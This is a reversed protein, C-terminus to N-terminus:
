LMMTNVQVEQKPALTAHEPLRVRLEDKGQEGIAEFIKGCREAVYKKMYPLLLRMPCNTLSGILAFIASVGYPNAWSCDIVVFLPESLNVHPKMIVSHPNADGSNDAYHYDDNERLRKFEVSDAMWTDDEDGEIDFVARAIYKIKFRADAWSPLRFIRSDEKVIWAFQWDGVGSVSTELLQLRLGEDAAGATVEKKIFMWDEQTFSVTQETNGSDDIVRLASTGTDSKGIAFAWAKKGHGIRVLGSQTYGGGSGSDTVVLSRAGAWVEAATVQVTDTANTETWSTDVTDSDQLDYDDPGHALPIKCEVTLEALADNMLNRLVDISVRLIYLTSSADSTFNAGSVTVTATGSSVTVGTIMREENNDSAWAFWGSLRTSPTNAGLRNLEPHTTTFTTSGSVNATIKLGLRDELAPGLACSDLLEDLTAELTSSTAM